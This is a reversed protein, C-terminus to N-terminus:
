EGKSFLAKIKQWLNVHAVTYAQQEGNAWDYRYEETVKNIVANKHKDEYLTVDVGVGVEMRRKSKENITTENVYTNFEETTYQNTTNYFNETNYSNEANNSDINIGAHGTTAILLIAGTLILKRM